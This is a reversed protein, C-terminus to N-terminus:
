EGGEPEEDEEEEEAAPEVPITMLNRILKAFNHFAETKGAEFAQEVPDGGKKAFKFLKAPNGHIELFPQIIEVWGRTSVTHLLMQAWERLKERQKKIASDPDEIAKELDKQFNLDAGRSKSIM